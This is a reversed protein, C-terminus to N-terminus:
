AATQETAPIGAGAGDTVRQAEPMSRPFLRASNLIFVLAPFVREPRIPFGTRISWDSAQGVSLNGFASVIGSFVLRTFRPM